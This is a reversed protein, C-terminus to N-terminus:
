RTHGMTRQARRAALALSCPFQLRGTQGGASCVACRGSGDDVHEALLKAAGGERALFHAIHDPVEDHTVVPL